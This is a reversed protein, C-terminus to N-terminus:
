IVCCAKLKESGGGSNMLYEASPSSDELDDSIIIHIIKLTTIYLNPPRAAHGIYFAKCMISIDIIEINILSIFSFPYNSISNMFDIEFRQMYFLIKKVSNVKLHFRHQSTTLSKRAYFKSM